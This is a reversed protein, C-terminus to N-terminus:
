THVFQHFRAHFGRKQTHLREIGVGAEHAQICQGTGRLTLLAPQQCGLLFRIQFREKVGEWLLVSRWGIQAHAPM